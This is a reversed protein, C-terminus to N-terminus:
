RARRAAALGDATSGRVPRAVPEGRLQALVAVHQRGAKVPHEGRQALRVRLHALRDGDVPRVHGGVRIAMLVDAVLIARQTGPKGVRIGPPPVPRRNGGPLAACKVPVFQVHGIQM